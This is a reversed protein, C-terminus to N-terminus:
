DFRATVSGLPDNEVVVVDHQEVWNTQVLSGLLV